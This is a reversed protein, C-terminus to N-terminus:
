LPIWKNDGGISKFLKKREKIKQKDDGKSDNSSLKKRESLGKKFGMQMVRAEIELDKAFKLLQKDSSRLAENQLTEEKLTKIDINLLEVLAQIKKKMEIVNAELKEIDANLDPTIEFPGKHSQIIKLTKSMEELLIRLSSSPNKEM